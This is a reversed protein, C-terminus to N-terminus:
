LNALQENNMVRALLSDQLCFHLLGFWVLGLWHESATGKSEQKRKNKSISTSTWWVRATTEIGVGCESRERSRKKGECGQVRM